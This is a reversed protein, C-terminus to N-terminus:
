QAKPALNKHARRPSPPAELLAAEQTLAARFSKRALEEALRLGQRPSLVISSGGIALRLTDDITFPLARM